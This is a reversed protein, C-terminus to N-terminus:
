GVYNLVLLLAAQIVAITYFVRRFRRDRNKHRFLMQGAFAGPTGGCAALAHLAMEPVRTGGARARWKDFGYALLTALNLGAFLARLWSLGLASLVLAIALTLLATGLLFSRGFRTM